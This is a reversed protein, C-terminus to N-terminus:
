SLNSRDLDGRNPSSRAIVSLKKWKSEIGPDWREFVRRGSNYYAGTMGPLGFGQSGSNKIKGQSKPGPDEARDMGLDAGDGL